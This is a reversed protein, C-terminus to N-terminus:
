KKELTAIRKELDAFAAEIAALQHLKVYSGAYNNIQLQLAAQQKKIEEIEKPM